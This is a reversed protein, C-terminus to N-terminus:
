AGGSVAAAVRGTGRPHGSPAAPLEVPALRSVGGGILRQQIPDAQATAAVIATVFMVPNRVLTRPDLKVFSDRIAPVVLERQFLGTQGSTAREM